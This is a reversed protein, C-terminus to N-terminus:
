MGCLSLAPYVCAGEAIALGLWGRSLGWGIRCSNDDGRGGGGGGGGDFPVVLNADAEEGGEGELRSGLGEEERRGRAAM